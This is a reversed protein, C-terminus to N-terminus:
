FILSATKKLVLLARRVEDRLDIKEVEKIGLWRFAQHEESLKVTGSELQSIGVLLVYPLGLYPGQTIIFSEYYATRSVARVLLGTEEFVERELAHSIDQGPELKGGPIEWKGAEFRDDDSRQIFLIKKQRNLVFSRNVFLIRPRTAKKSIM